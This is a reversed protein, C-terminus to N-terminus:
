RILAFMEQTNWQNILAMGNNCIFRDVNDLMIFNPNKGRAIKKKKGLDIIAAIHEVNNDLARYKRFNNELKGLLTSGIACLWAIRGDAIGAFHNLQYLQAHSKNHEISESRLRTSQEHDATHPPTCM